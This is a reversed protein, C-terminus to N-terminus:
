TGGKGLDLGLAVLRSFFATHSQRERVSGHLGGEQVWFVSNSPIVNVRVPSAVVPIRVSDMMVTRKGPDWRFGRTQSKGMSLLWILWENRVVDIQRFM